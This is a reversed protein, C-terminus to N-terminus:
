FSTRLRLAVVMADDDSSRGGPQHIYQIDPTLTTNPTLQIRYYLETGIERDFDPNVYTRYDKSGQLQYMGLGVVDADRRELLGVYQLGTSWFHENRNVDGHRYGYRAFLGLGQKSEQSERYVTQDFSIYAGYDGSQKRDMDRLVPRQRPDYLLGFRYTGDLPGKRSNLSLKFDNQFFAFFEHKGDFTTKFGDDLPTADGDASGIVMSWWDTPSFFLSAGLGIALPITANNNDLYTTMFQKDESNACANRDLMTQQDLYGIRLQLRKGALDQQYWFQAVYLNRNGDADDLPASIAGVEPNINERYRDKVHLLVLGGDIVKMRQFDLQVFMDTSQSLRYADNTSNGGRANGGYYVNSFLSWKIGRAELWDRGGAWNGTLRDAQFDILRYPAVSQETATTAAAPEAANTGEPSCFILLYVCITPLFFQLLRM